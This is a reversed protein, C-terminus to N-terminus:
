VGCVGACESQMDWEILEMQRGTTSDIPVLSRHLYPKERLRGWRGTGRDEWLEHLSKELSVIQDWHRTSRLREWEHQSHFPCHWCASRVPEWGHARVIERCEGRSILCDILPYKFQLWKLQSIKARQMEDVSIGFWQFVPRTHHRDPYLDRIKATIPDIKFARTCQRAVPTAKGDEGRVFLPPWHNGGAKVHDSLVGASVTHLTIGHDALMPACQQINEYVEDPEDGTDAFIWDQPIAGAKKLREPEHCAMIALATSQIGGGFSCVGRPKPQDSM